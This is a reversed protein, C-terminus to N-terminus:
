LNNFTNNKNGLVTWQHLIIKFFKKFVLNVNPLQM